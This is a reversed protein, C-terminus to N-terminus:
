AAAPALRAMFQEVAGNFKETEELFPCHGSDEFMVVEAHPIRQKLDDAGSAPLLEDHRGWLILTPIDVSKVAERYDQVTQDFLIASLPGIPLKLCEDVMWEVDSPDQDNHFMEPVLHRIFAEHDEQVDSMLSHLTPLDALGHPFGDWKFDSASEDVAILAALGGTGFQRIYEYAVFGGMSWGLLVPRELGLVEIFRQLDRAYHPVTHGNQPKSSDGHGRLDVAIVRHHESLPELQRHFYRRSMSIGHVLLLPQAEKDGHDDYALTVDDAITVTPMFADKLDEHPAPALRSLSAVRESAQEM